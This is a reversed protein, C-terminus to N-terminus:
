FLRRATKAGALNADYRTRIKFMDVIMGPKM